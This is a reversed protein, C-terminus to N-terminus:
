HEYNGLFDNIDITITIRSNESPIGIYDPHEKNFLLNHVLEPDVGLSLLYSERDEYWRDYDFEFQFVEDQKDLIPQLKKLEEPTYFEEPLKDLKMNNCDRCLSVINGAELHGGHAIPIHHDMCLIPPKGVEQRVKEKAGCRFCRHDFLAFFKNKYVDEIARIKFRGFLKRKEKTRQGKYAETSM